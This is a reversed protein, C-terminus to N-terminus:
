GKWFDSDIELWETEIEDIDAAEASSEGLRLTLVDDALAQVDAALISLQPDDVTFDEIEWAPESAVGSGGLQRAQRSEVLFLGFGILVAAAAATLGVRIYLGVGRRLRKALENSVRLKVNSIVAAGPKPAPNGSVIQEGRLLEEEVKQAEAQNYFKSLLEKLNEEKNSM